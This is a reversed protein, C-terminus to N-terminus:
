SCLPPAFASEADSLKRQLAGSDLRVGAVVHGHRALKHEISQVPGVGMLRALEDAATASSGSRVAIV